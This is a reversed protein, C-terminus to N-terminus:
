GQVSDSTKPCSVRGQEHRRLHLPSAPHSTSFQDTRRFRLIKEAKYAVLVIEDPVIRQIGGIAEFALQASARVVLEAKRNLKTDHSLCPSKKSLVFLRGGSDNM